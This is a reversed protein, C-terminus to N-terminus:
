RQSHENQVQSGPLPGPPVLRRSSQWPRSLEGHFCAQQVQSGQWINLGLAAELSVVLILAMKQKYNIGHLPVCQISGIIYDHARKAGFFCFALNAYRSLEELVDAM